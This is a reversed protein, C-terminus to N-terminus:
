FPTITVGAIAAVASKNGSRDVAKVGVSYGIFVNAAGGVEKIPIQVVKGKATKVVNSASDWVFSSSGAKIFQFEYHSFDTPEAYPPITAVLTTKDRKLVVSSINGPITADHVISRTVSYQGVTDFARLYFTTTSSASVGGIVAKSGRGRYKAGAGGWGSDTQRVEYGAIPLTGAAAEDWDLILTIKGNAVKQIEQTPAPCQGPITLSVALQAGASINGLGDIVKVTFTRTGTWDIEFRKTSAKVYVTKSAYTIQYKDIGFTPDTDDWDLTVTDESKSSPNLRFSLGTPAAPVAYTYTATAVPSQNGHADVTRAYVNYTGPATPTVFARSAKGM